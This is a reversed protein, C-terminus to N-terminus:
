ETSQKQKELIHEKSILFLKKIHDDVLSYYVEKGRKECKILNMERLYKLQHSTASKTMNILVSIDCVCLEHVMLANIIKVRTSESMAKYFDAMSLMVEESIMKNKVKDVIDKHISECDCDLSSDKKAVNTKCGCNSIKKNKM